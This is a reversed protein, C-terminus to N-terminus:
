RAFTGGEAACAERLHAESTPPGYYVGEHGDHTCSGIRGESPCDAIWRGGTRRCSAEVRALPEVSAYVLECVGNDASGSFCAMHAPPALEGGTTTEAPLPEAPTERPGDCGLAVLAALGLARRM